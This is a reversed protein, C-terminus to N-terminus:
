FSERIRDGMPESDLNLAQKSLLQSDEDTIKANAVTNQSIKLLDRVVEYASVEGQAYKQEVPKRFKAM